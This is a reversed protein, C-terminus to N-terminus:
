DEAYHGGALAFGVAQPVYGNQQRKMNTTLSGYCPEEEEDAFGNEIGAFKEEYQYAREMAKILHYIPDDDKERGSSHYPTHHIKSLEGGGIYDRWVSVNPNVTSAECGLHKSADTDDITISGGRHTFDYELTTIGKERCFYRLKAITDIEELEHKIERNM